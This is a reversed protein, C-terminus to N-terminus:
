RTPLEEPLSICEVPVGYIYAMGCLQFYDPKTQGREWKGLTAKNVKGVDAAEQQTFGANVRAAELTIKM